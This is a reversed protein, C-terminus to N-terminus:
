ISEKVFMDCKQCLIIGTRGNNEVQVVVGRGGVCDQKRATRHKKLEDVSAGVTYGIHLESLNVRGLREHTSPNITQLDTM